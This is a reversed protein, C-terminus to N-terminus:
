PLRGCRPIRGAVSEVGSVAQAVPIPESPGVIKASPIREKIRGFALRWGEKLRENDNLPLAALDPENYIDWLVNLRRELVQDIIRDVHTLWPAYNGDLGIQNIDFDPPCSPSIGLRPTLQFETVGVRALRDYNSLM